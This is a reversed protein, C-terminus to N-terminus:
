GGDDSGDGDGSSDAGDIGGDGGDRIRRNYERVLDADEVQEPAAFEAQQSDVGGASGGGAGSSDRDPFTRDEEVDRGGGSSEIEATQNDDGTSVEERDGLVRDGDLLGTYNTPEDASGNTEPQPRDFLALDVVAVQVTALSLAAIVVAVAGLRGVNLLGVASSERLDALVEGYLRRAMRSDADAEAADRATRLKEAVSPNVGEFREVLPERLRLWVAVALALAGVAAAATASGPVAVAGLDRGLASGVPDTVSAPVRLRDPVWSPSLAALVLNVGLFVAVAEVVAATVAAKWAERRIEGIAWRMRERSDADDTM